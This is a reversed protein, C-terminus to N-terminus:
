GHVLQRDATGIKFEQWQVFLRGSRVEHPLPDMSRPPPGGTHKGATDFAGGHCPCDFQSRESHWNIPCGLHPCLSSLVTISEDGDGHRHVWVAHRARTKKWGDQHVEEVSRLCWQDKPLEAVAGVDRFTADSGDAGEKRRLPAGLYALAPIAVLAGLAAIVASTCVSLFGRRHVENAM